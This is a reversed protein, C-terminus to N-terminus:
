EQSGEDYPRGFILGSRGIPTEYETHNSEGTTPVAGRRILGNRRLDLLYPDIRDLVEQGQAVGSTYITIFKGAQASRCFEIYKQLDRVVKHFVRLERLKPLVCRAVHEASIFDASVHFKWGRQPAEVHMWKTFWNSGSGIPYYGYESPGFNANSEPM